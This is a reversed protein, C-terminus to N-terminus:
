KTKTAPAKRTARKPSSKSAVTAIDTTKVVAKAMGATAVTGKESKKSRSRKKKLLVPPLTALQSQFFDTQFDIGLSKLYNNNNKETRVAKILLGVPGKRRVDHQKLPAGRTKYAYALARRRDVMQRSPMRRRMTVARARVAKGGLVMGNCEEVVLPIASEKDFEVYAIGRSRHTRKSRVCFCNLVTAGFQNLFKYLQPEQFEPPLFSLRVARYPEVTGNSDRQRSASSSAQKGAGLEDDSPTRDAMDSLDDTDSDVAAGGNLMDDEDDRSNEEDSPVPPAAVEEEARKAKVIGSRKLDTAARQRAASSTTATTKKANQGKKRPAAALPAHKAAARVPVNVHTTQIAAAAAKVTSEAFSLKKRKGTAAASDVKKVASKPPM